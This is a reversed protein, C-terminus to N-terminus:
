VHDPLEDARHGLHREVIAAAVLELAKGVPPTEVLDRRTFDFLRWSRQGAAIAKDPAFLLAEVDPHQEVARRGPGASHQEDRASRANACRAEGGLHGALGCALAPYNQGAPAHFM